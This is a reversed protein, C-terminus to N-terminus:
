LRRMGEWVGVDMRKLFDFVDMDGYVMECVCFCMIIIIDRRM